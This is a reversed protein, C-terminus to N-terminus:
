AVSVAVYFVGRDVLYNNCFFFRSPQSYKEKKGKWGDRREYHSLETIERHVEHCIENDILWVLLLLLRLKHPSKSARFRGHMDMDLGFLIM